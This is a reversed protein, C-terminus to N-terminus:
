KLLLMTSTQNIHGIYSEGYTAFGISPVSLFIDSYAQQQNKRSLEGTRQCCNFDVIGELNGLGAKELDKRTDAVIDGSQLINLELGEKVACYFAVSKGEVKQPSRVFFHDKDFVLGVPYDGIRNVLEDVPIGLVESYAEIAPKHNFEHVTRLSEDVKTPLLKKDTIIFSQMKLISFGNTPEMLVFLAADTYAKGNAFVYTVEFKFDDGSSGGVFPVNTLNGIQDNIAEECGSLGDIIMLGVYRVPDLQKMSMGLSQEFAEFAKPVAQNDTKIHELVEVKLYKLTSKDWAMAVISNQGMQGSIMEGVTTCGVVCVGPFANAMNESLQGAPYISSSFYLVMCPNTDKLQEKINDVATVVDRECSRVVKFKNM